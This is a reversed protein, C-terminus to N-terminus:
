KENIVQVAKEIQEDKGALIGKITPRCIVDIKVGTKQAVTGDPYYIGWGSFDTKLGGPLPIWDIRVGDAGATTSGITTTKTAAQLAMASFEGHSKCFVNVLLIVKGKYPQTNKKGGRRDAYKYLGPYSLDPYAIRGVLFTDSCLRAAIIPWTDNPHTRIDIILGKTAFLSDMVANANGPQLVAMNIYGINGPLMKWYPPVPINDPYPKNYRNITLKETKGDPKLRTIECAGTKGAFLLSLCLSQLAADNNSASYVYPMYKNIRAEITEGDISIIVDNIAIGQSKCLSDNIIFTVVAKDEVISCEFPLYKYEGLFQTLQKSWSITRSHGDGLAGILQIISIHYQLTDKAEYFAPIFQDLVKNWNKTTIYKYPSFYNVINWYRFLTLLRYDPSPYKFAEAYYPAENGARFQSYQGQSVYYNKGQSRNALIFQLKSIVEPKFGSKSIWATDLNYSLRGSLSNDCSDCKDVQGLEALWNLMIDNLEQTNKASLFVPVKAILVDDWSYQGKAVKPHYYKFFGWAKGLVALSTVQNATLSREPAAFTRNNGSTIILLFSLCLYVFRNNM